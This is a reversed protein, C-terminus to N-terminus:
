ASLRRWQKRHVTAHPLFTHSLFLTFSCMLPCHSLLHTAPLHTLYPLDVSLKVESWLLMLHWCTVAKKILYSVLYKLLSDTRCHCNLQKRDTVYVQDGFLLVTTM